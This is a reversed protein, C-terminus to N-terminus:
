PMELCIKFIKVSKARPATPNITPLHTPSRVSPLVPLYTPLYTPVPTCLNKSCGQVKESNGVTQPGM